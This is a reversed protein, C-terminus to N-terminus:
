PLRAAFGRGRGEAEDLGRMDPNLMSGRMASSAAEYGPHLALSM